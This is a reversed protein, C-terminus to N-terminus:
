YREFSKEIVKPKERISLDLYEEMFKKLKRGQDTAPNILPTIENLLFRLEVKMTRFENMTARANKGAGFSITM